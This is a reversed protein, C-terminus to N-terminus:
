FVAYSIRVHSSNLRTSKRDVPQPDVEQGASLSGHSIVVLRSEESIGSIWLGDVDAREVTVQEFLVMNNDDVTHVGMRGATDIKLQAASIKHAQVENTKITVEASM